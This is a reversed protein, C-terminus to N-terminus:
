GRKFEVTQTDGGSDMQLQIISKYTGPTGNTIPGAEFYVEGGVPAEQGNANVITQEFVTQGDKEVHVFASVSGQAIAVNGVNLAMWQLMDRSQDYDPRGYADVLRLELGKEQYTHPAYGDTGPAQPAEARLAAWTQDGVIGDDSIHRDQQFKHVAALTGDGVRGSEGSPISYNLSTLLYQLYEVWGDAGEDGLRLTPEGSM